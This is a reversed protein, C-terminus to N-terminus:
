TSGRRPAATPAPEDPRSGVGPDSLEPEDNGGHAERLLEGVLYDSGIVLAYGDPGTAAKALRVGEGATRAVVIRPFRGAADSKLEPAPIARDSKIPVVVLTKALPSLADLIRDVRKGRVCGFVIANEGPDTLPFMEGLSQAVRRASEPTHAVDYFLTPRRGVRELRGPWRVEAFGARIRDDDLALGTAEAFRVVSALALAANDPQFRGHLPIQIGGVTRGPLELDFSQGHESIERGVVVIEGGLRWLRVGRQRADSDIAARAEDPVEGVVGTMGAHLIGAKEHAIAALSDGLIETHELEISTIAGVRSDLVNTSDLRGGVGVEIVAARVKERAFWDFALATTVEFFTPARDITGAALLEATRDEVRRVGRVVEEPSITRGDVRMRERYSELHPSTFLATPIGHAVLISQAMAATSGKGKSGTIHISPFAREPRGLAALLASVVELGPRIGFRRRRYLADLTARYEERAVSPRRLSFAAAM